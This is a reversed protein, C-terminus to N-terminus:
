GKKPHTHLSIYIEEKCCLIMMNKKTLIQVKPMPLVSHQGVSTLNAEFYHLAQNCRCFIFYTYLIYQLTTFNRKDIESAITPFHAWM